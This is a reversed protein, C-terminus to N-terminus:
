ADIPVDVGGALDLSAAESRLCDRAGLLAEVEAVLGASDGAGEVARLGDVAGRLADTGGVLAGPVEESRFGEKAGRFAEVGATLCVSDVAGVGARLGEVAGWFSEM